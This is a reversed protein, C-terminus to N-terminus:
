FLPLNCLILIILVIILITRLELLKSYINELMKVKSSVELYTNSSCIAENDLFCELRYLIEKEKFIELGLVCSIEDLEDLTFEVKKNDGIM